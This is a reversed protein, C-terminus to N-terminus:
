NSQGTAKKVRSVLGPSASVIKKVLAETDQWKRPNVSLKRKKADALFAPDAVAKAFATRLAAVRDAPVGPGVAISRAIPTGAIVFEAVDRDEPKALEVLTPVDRIEPIRELTYTVLLNIKKDRIWDPKTALLNAVSPTWGHTEGQEM